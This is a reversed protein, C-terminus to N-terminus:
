RDPCVKGLADVRAGEKVEHFGVINVCISVSRAPGKLKFDDACPLCFLSMGEGAM